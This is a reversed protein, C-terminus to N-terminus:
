KREELIVNITRAGSVSATATGEDIVITGTTTAVTPNHLGGVVTETLTVTGLADTATFLASITENADLATKLNTGTEAVDAGVVFEDDGAVADVATFTVGNITVTDPTDKSTTVTGAGIVITGTVTATSPTNGGAVKETLTITGTADTVTYLASITANANLATTLATATATTDTGIAFEDADAVAVVATFTVGNITVTDDAVANTTIPYTRVGQTTVNANTTIPYTRVGAVGVQNVPVSSTGSLFKLYRVNYLQPEVVAMSISRDVGMEITTANGDEKYLNKFSVNDESTLLTVDAATWASPTEIRLIKRGDLNISNSLSGNNPIIVTSSDILVTM